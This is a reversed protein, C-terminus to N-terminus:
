GLAGDGQAATGDFLRMPEHNLRM